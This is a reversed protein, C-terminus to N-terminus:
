HLKETAEFIQFFLIYIYFLQYIKKKFLLLRVSFLHKMLFFDKLSFNFYYIKLVSTIASSFFHIHDFLILPNPTEREKM